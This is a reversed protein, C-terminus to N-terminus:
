EAFLRRPEAASVYDPAYILQMSMLAQREATELVGKPVFCICERKHPTLIAEQCAPTQQVDAPVFAPNQWPVKKVEM